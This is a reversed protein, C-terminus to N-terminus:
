GKALHHSPYRIASNLGALAPHLLGSAFVRASTCFGFQPPICPSSPAVCDSTRAMPVRRMVYIRRSRTSLLRPTGRSLWQNERNFAPRLACRSVLHEAQTRQDRAARSGAPFPPFVFVPTPERTPLGCPHGFPQHCDASSMTPPTPLAPPPFAPESSDPRASPRFPSHIRRM